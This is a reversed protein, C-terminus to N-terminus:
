FGFEEFGGQVRELVRDGAKQPVTVAERGADRKELLWKLSKEISEFSRVPCKLPRCARRIWREWRQDGVFGIREVDTRHRSDFRLSKWRSGADWGELDQLDFLVLLNRHSGLDSEIQPFAVRYERESLRGRARLVFLNRSGSQLKEFDIM